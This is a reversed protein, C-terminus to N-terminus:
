PPTDGLFCGDDIVVIVSIRAPELHGGYMCTTCASSIDRLESVELLAVVLRLRGPDGLLSSVDALL